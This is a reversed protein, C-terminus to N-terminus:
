LSDKIFQIDETLQHKTAAFAERKAPKTAMYFALSALGADVLLITVMMALRYESHWFHGLIAAHVVALSFFAFVIGIGAWILRRALLASEINTEVAILKGYLELRSLATACSNKLNILEKIM